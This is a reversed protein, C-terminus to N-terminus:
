RGQSEAAEMQQKTDYCRVVDQNHACTLERRTAEDPTLSRGRYEVADATAVGAAFGIPNGQARLEALSHAPATPEARSGLRALERDAADYAVLEIRGRDPVTVSFFRGPLDEAQRPIAPTREDGDGLVDVRAVQAAALGYIIRENSQESSEVVVLGFPHQADPRDSCGYAPRHGEFRLNLCIGGSEDAARAIQYRGSATAGEDINGFQTAAGAGAALLAAGTLALAGARRWPWRSAAARRAALLLERELDPLTSM